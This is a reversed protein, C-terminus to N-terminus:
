LVFTRRGPELKVIKDGEIGGDVRKVVAMTLHM